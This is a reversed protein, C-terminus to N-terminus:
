QDAAAPAADPPGGADCLALVEGIAWRSGRLTFTAVAFDRGPDVVIENGTQLADLLIQEGAGVAGTFAGPTRAAQLNTLAYRAGDMRIALIPDAAVADSQPLFAAYWGTDWGGEASCQIGFCDGSESCVTASASELGARIEWGQAAALSPLAAALAAAILTRRM